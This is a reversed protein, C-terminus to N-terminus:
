TLDVYENLIGVCVNAQCIVQCLTLVPNVVCFLLSVVRLTIFVKVLLVGHYIRWRIYLQNGSSSFFRCHHVWRRDPFYRFIKLEFYEAAAHESFLCQTCCKIELHGCAAAYAGEENPVISLLRQRESCFM